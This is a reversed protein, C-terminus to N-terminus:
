KELRPTSRGKAPELLKRQFSLLVVGCLILAMALAARLTFPEGGIVSGLLMAVVPNVYAYTGLRAPTTVTNLWAYASLAVISGFAILYLMEFASAPTVANIHSFEGTAAAVALFGISACAMEMGNVLWPSKPLDANRALMTGSAWSLSGLLVAGAGFFDVGKGLFSESGTHIVLLALGILGVLVGAVQAITPRLRAGGIWNLVLLWLPLTAVLLATVGSPIRMEAWCVAGNGGVLMLTGVIGANRWQMLTPTPERRLKSYVLLVVGAFAFRISGLVFPPFSELAYRIALYTSGWILYIAAFAM